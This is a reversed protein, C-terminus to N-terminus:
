TRRVSFGLLGLGLLIAAGPLPVNNIPAASNNINLSPDNISSLTTGGDSVLFVGYLASSYDINNGFNSGTSLIIKSKGTYGAANAEAGARLVDGDQSLYLGYSKHQPRAGGTQHIIKYDTMGTTNKISRVVSNFNSYGLETKYDTASLTGLQYFATNMYNLVEAENPLRWGQYTTNLEAQIAAISKGDTNDLKLWEIGSETNLTVSADGDVLWDTSILEANANLASLVLFSAFGFKKFYNM